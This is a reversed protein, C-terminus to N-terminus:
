YLTTLMYNVYLVAYTEPTHGLSTIQMYGSIIVVILKHIDMM